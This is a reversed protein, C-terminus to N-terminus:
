LNNIFLSKNPENMQLRKTLEKISGGPPAHAPGASFSLGQGLNTTSLGRTPKQKSVKTRAPMAPMVYKNSATPDALTITSKEGQIQDPHNKSLNKNMKMKAAQHWGQM